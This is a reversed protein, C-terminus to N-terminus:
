SAGVVEDHAALLAERVSKPETKSAQGAPGNPAGTVSSGARRASASKTKAAEAQQKQAATERASLLKSRTGDNAWVATEYLRKMDPVRGASREVQALRAMDDVVEDFHPHLLSGDANKMEAFQDIGSRTTQIQQQQVAREFHELRQQMQTLRPDIVSQQQGLNPNQQVAQALQEPTVGYSRAISMIGGLPDQNLKLEAAAWAQILSAKTHGNKQLDAMYPKFLEEVPAYERTFNSLGQMKRTYDGEMARHREMIWGRSSEPVERFKAKDAESWHAPPEIVSPTAVTASVAAAGETKRETAALPKAPQGATETKEAQKAYRGQEDRARQEATKTETAAAPKETEGEPPETTENFAAVLEDRVSRPAEAEEREAPIAANELQTGDAM